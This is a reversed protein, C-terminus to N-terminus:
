PCLECRHGVIMKRLRDDPVLGLMLAERHAELERLTEALERVEGAGKISRRVMRHLECMQEAREQTDAGVSRAGFRLEMRQDEAGTVRGSPPGTEGCTPELAEEIVETGWGSGAPVAMHGEVIEPSRTSLEAKWSVVDIEMIRLNPVLASLSATVFSALHSYYNHPAVNLQYVEALDAVKKAQGLGIWIPDVM